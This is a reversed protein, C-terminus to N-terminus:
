NLSLFDQMDQPLPCRIKCLAGSNPHRFQLKAAHLCHRVYGSAAIVEATNGNEYFELFVNEDPHYLKDGLLPYGSYAAHIRIQNTRGTKPRAMLLSHSKLKKIVRFFTLAPLGGDQVWKKIRIQSEVLDGIPQNVAWSSRNPHGKVLALYTKEIQQLRFMQSIKQKIEPHNGCLVIGSTERDLRHLPSWESGFKKHLLGVFTNHRYPGGEHMPLPAPKSIAILGENQWLLQLDDNVEPEKSEPYYYSIQDGRRPYYTTKINSSNVFVEGQKIRIQWQHRSFFPYKEALFKDIRDLYDETLPPGLTRMKPNLSSKELLKTM